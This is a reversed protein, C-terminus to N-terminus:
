YKLSSVQFKTLLLIWQGLHRSLFALKMITCSVTFQNEDSLNSLIFSRAVCCLSTHNDNPGNRFHEWHEKCMNLCVASGWGRQLEESEFSKSLGIFCPYFHHHWDRSSTLLWHAIILMGKRQGCPNHVFISISCGGGWAQTGTHRLYVSGEAAKHQIHLTCM